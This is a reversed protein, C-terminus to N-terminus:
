SQPVLHVDIGLHDAGVVEPRDAPAQVRRLHVGEEGLDGVLQLPRLVVGRGHLRPSPSRHLADASWGAAGTAGVASASVILRM